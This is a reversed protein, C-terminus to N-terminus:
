SKQWKGQAHDYQSGKQSEGIVRRINLIYYSDHPGFTNSLVIAASDIRLETM